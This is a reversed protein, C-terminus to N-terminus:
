YIGLYSLVAPLGYIGQWFRRRPRLVYFSQISDLALGRETEKAFRAILVRHTFTQFLVYELQSVNSTFLRGFAVLENPWRETEQIATERTYGGATIYPKPAWINRIFDNSETKDHMFDEPILKDAWIRPEVVHLYALDPQSRLLQTVFYTFTEKLSSDSMRVGTIPTLPHIYTYHYLYRQRSEM